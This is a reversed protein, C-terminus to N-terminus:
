KVVFSNEGHGAEQFEVPDLKRAVGQRRDYEQRSHAQAHNPKTRLTPYCLDRRLVLAGSENIGYTVVASIKKGSMEIRDTHPDNEAVRWTIKNGSSLNWRAM